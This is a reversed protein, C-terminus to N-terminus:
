SILFKLIVRTIRIMGKSVPKAVKPISTFTPQTQTSETGFLGARIICCLLLCTHYWFFNITNDYIKLFTAGVQHLLLGPFFNANQLIIDIKPKKKNASDKKFKPNQKRPRKRSWGVFIWIQRSAIQSCAESSKSLRRM